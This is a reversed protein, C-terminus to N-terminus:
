ELYYYPHHRNRSNGPFFSLYMMLIYFSKQCRVVLFVWVFFYIGDDVGVFGFCIIIFIFLCRRLRRKRRRRDIIDV